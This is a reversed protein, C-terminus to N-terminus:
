GPLEFIIDRLDIGRTKKLVVDKGLTGDSPSTFEAGEVFVKWAGAALCNKIGETMAETSTSEKKSGVQGLVKLGFDERGIRILNLKDGPKLDLNDDSVEIVKFGLRKAEEFYRPAIMLGHQFIGHELLQGGIFGDITHDRYIKVKEKLVRQSITGSM